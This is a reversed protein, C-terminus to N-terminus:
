QWTGMVLCECTYPNSTSYPLLEGVRELMTRPHFPPDNRLVTIDHRATQLIRVNEQPISDWRMEASVGVAGSPPAPVKGSYVLFSLGSPTVLGAQLGVAPTCVRLVDELGVWEVWVGLCWSGGLLEQPGPM